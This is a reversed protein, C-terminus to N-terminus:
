FKLSNGHSYQLELFTLCPVRAVPSPTRADGLEGCLGVPGAVRLGLHEEPRSDVCGKSVWTLRQPAKCTYGALCADTTFKVCGLVLTSPALSPFWPQQACVAPRPSSGFIVQARLLKRFAACLAFVYVSSGLCCFLSASILWSQVSLPM